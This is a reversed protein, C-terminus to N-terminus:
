WPYSSHWYWRTHVLTCRSPPEHVVYHPGDAEQRIGLCGGSHLTRIVNYYFPYESHSYSQFYFRQNIGGHCIAQVVVAGSGLAGGFVDLCKNDHAARIDFTGDPYEYLDFKQSPIFPNAYSVVARIGESTSSGLIDLFWGQQTPNGPEYPFQGSRFGSDSSKITTSPQAGVPLATAFIILFTWTWSPM